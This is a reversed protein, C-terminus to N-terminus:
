RWPCAPECTRRLVGRQAAAGTRPRGAATSAVMGAAPALGAMSQWEWLRPVASGAIGCAQLVYATFGKGQRGPYLRLAGSARREAYETAEHGLLARVWAEISLGWASGYRLRGGVEM